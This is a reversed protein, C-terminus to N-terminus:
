RSEAKVSSLLNFSVDSLVATGKAGYQVEFIRTYDGPGVAWFLPARCRLLAVWKKFSNIHKPHNSLPATAGTEGYARLHLVLEDIEAATKKVEGAIRENTDVASHYVAFDFAWDKSQMGLVEAPWGFDFSLRGMTAITIVPEVWLTIPRPQISKAGEWFIQEFANSRACRYRGGGSDYVLGSEIARLFNRADFETIRISSERFGSTSFQRKPDACFAPLWENQLRETFIQLDTTL